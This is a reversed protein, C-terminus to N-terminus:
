VRHKAAYNKLIWPFGQVHDSLSLAVKVIPRFCCLFLWKSVHYKRILHAITRRFRFSLRERLRNLQPRLDHRCLVPIARFFDGFHRSGEAKFLDSLTFLLRPDVLNEM